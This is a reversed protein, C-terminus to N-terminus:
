WRRPASRVDVDALVTDDKAVSYAQAYPLEETEGEPQFFVYYREKTELLVRLHGANNHQRVAGPLRGEADKTFAFRIIRAEGSRMRIAAGLAQQRAMWFLAPLAAILLGVGIWVVQPRTTVWGHLIPGLVVLLVVGTAVVTITIWSADPLMFYSYMFFHYVPIEVANLSLGFHSYLGYAYVWGTFYAYVAIVVLIDRIAAFM